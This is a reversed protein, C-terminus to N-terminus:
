NVFTVCLVLSIYDSLDVLITVKIGNAHWRRLAEPVDDYVVGQLEKNQFGTRWIHGQMDAHFYSM